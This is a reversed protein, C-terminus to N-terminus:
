WGVSYHVRGVGIDLSGRSLSLKWGFAVAAGSWAAVSSWTYFGRKESVCEGAPGCVQRQHQSELASLGVGAILLVLGIDELSQMRQEREGDHAPEPEQIAFRPQAEACVGTVVLAAVVLLVQM